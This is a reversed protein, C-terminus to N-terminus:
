VNRMRGEAHVLVCCMREMTACTIATLMIASVKVLGNNKSVLCHSFSSKAKPLHPLMESFPCCFALLPKSPSSCSDQYSYHVALVLAPCPLRVPVFAHPNSIAHTYVHLFLPSDVIFRPKWTARVSTFLVLSPFWIKLEWWQDDAGCGRAGSFEDELLPGLGMGSLEVDGWM